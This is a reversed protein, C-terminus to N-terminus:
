RRRPRRRLSASLRLDGDGAHRRQRRAPHLMSGSIEFTAASQLATVYQQALESVAPECGILTSALEPSVSLTDGDTTYPGSFSNCGDSGGM